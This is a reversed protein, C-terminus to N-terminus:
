QEEKDFVNGVVKCQNAWYALDNRLYKGMGVHGEDTWDVYFGQATNEQQYGTPTYSGFCVVGKYEEPEFFLIDGEFIHRGDIDRTFSNLCVTAPDVDVGEIDRPMNWDSFGDQVILFRVDEDSLIDGIPSPTRNIHTLFSGYVWRGHVNKAKAYPGALSLDLKKRSLFEELYTM